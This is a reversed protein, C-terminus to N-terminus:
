QIANPETGVDEFRVEVEGDAREHSFNVGAEEFDTDRCMQLIFETTEVSCEFYLQIRRYEDM